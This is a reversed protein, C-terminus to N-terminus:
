AVLREALESPDLRFPMCYDSVEPMLGPQGEGRSAANLFSRARYLLRQTRREMREKESEVKFTSSFILDSDGSAIILQFAAGTASKPTAYSAAEKIAEWRDELLDAKQKDQRPGDCFVAYNARNEEAEMALAQVPCQSPKPM